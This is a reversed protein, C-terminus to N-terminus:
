FKFKKARCSHAYFSITSDVFTFLFPQFYHHFVLHPIPYQLNCCAKSCSLHTLSQMTRNNIHLSLLAHAAMKKNSLFYKQLNKITHDWFYWFVMNTANVHMVLSSSILQNLLIKKALKILLQSICARIIVDFKILVVLLRFIEYILPCVVCYAARLMLSFGTQSLSRHYIVNSYLLIIIRMIYILFFITGM